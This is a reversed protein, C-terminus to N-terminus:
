IKLKCHTQPATTLLTLDGGFPDVTTLNFKQTTVVQHAQVVQVTYNITLTSGASTKHIDTGGVINFEDTLRRRLMHDRIVMLLKLCTKILM